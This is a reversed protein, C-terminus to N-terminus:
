HISSSILSQEVTTDVLAM